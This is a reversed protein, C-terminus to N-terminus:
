AKYDKKVTSVAVTLIKEHIVMSWSSEQYTKNSAMTYVCRVCCHLCSVRNLFIPTFNVRTLTRLQLYSLPQWGYSQEDRNVKAAIDEGAVKMSSLPALMTGSLPKGHLCCSYRTPVGLSLEWVATTTCMCVIAIWSIEKRCYSNQPSGVEPISQSCRCPYLVLQTLHETMQANWVCAISCRKGRETSM